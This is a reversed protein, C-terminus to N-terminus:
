FQAGAGTDGSYTRKATDDGRAVSGTIGPGSVVEVAAAKRAQELQDALSDLGNAQAFIKLDALVDLIWEYKM